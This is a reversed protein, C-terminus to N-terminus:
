IQQRNLRVTQTFGGRSFLAYYIRWGTSVCSRADRGGLWAIRQQYSVAAERDVFM